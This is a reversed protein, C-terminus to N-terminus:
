ENYLIQIDLVSDALSTSYLLSATSYNYEKIANGSSVIIENHVPDYRLRSANLGNLYTGLSNPNWTYQYITQNAFALLYTNSNIQTASLLRSSPLSVPEFFTNAPINYQLLYPQGTSENGLVLLDNNDYGFMAVIPGNPLALQQYGMGTAQYFVVLNENPPPLAKEEVFLYNSWIFTKVPYYGTDTAIQLQLVGANNYFRVFGSFLSVYAANGYSYVNTFYQAPSNIGQLTWSTSASPVKLATMNGTDLPVLYLQQYYSNIDSSAFNGPVTFFPTAHLLTDLSYGQLWNGARTIAYIAVRKEPAAAIYIKQYAYSINAGNYADVVINYNGSALHINNLAYPVTFTMNDSTVTIQYGPLVQINAGNIIYVSITKLGDPDSVHATVKITDFVNYTTLGSPSIIQVVPSDM